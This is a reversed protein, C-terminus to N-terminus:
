KERPIGGSVMSSVFTPYLPIGLHPTAITNFNVPEVRDFFKQAYLAGIVYRALLGGLSYGTISFRTVKRSGSSEIAEIRKYIQQKQNAHSEPSIIPPAGCSSPCMVVTISARQVTPYFHHAVHNQLHTLSYSLACRQWSDSAAGTSATTLTNIRIPSPLWSRSNM